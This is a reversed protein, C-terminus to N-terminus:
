RQKLNEKRISGQLPCNKRRTKIDPRFTMSGFIFVISNVLLAIVACYSINLDTILAIAIMVLIGSAVGFAAAKGNSRNWFLAGVVPVFIQATGSMGITGTYIIMVPSNLLLVYATASIILVAWKGVSVLKKESADRDIYKKHIDITYVAAISHIQSNATSLAASAVGCLLLASLVADGHEWLMIPIISDTQEVGPALIIGASGAFLTGLCQIATVSILLPILDFSKEKEAAYFRIWM